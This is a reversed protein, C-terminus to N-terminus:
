SLVHQRCKSLWAKGLQPLDRNSIGLNEMLYQLDFFEPGHFGLGGRDQQNFCSKSPIPPRLLNNEWKVHNSTTNATILQQM